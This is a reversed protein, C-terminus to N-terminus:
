GGLESENLGDLAKEADKEDTYDAFAFTKKLNYTIECAGYMLFAMKLNVLGVKDSINRIFLSM